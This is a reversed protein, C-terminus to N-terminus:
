DNNVEMSMQGKLIVRHRIPKETTFSKCIKGGYEKYEMLDSYPFRSEDFRADECANWIRCYGRRYRTCRWCQTELFLEYETGNSFMTKCEIKEAM